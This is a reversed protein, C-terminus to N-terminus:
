WNPSNILGRSWIKKISKDWSSHLVLQQSTNTSKKTQVKFYKWKTKTKIKSKYM